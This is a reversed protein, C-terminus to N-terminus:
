AEAAEREAHWQSLPVRTWQEGVTEGEPIEAGWVVTLAGDDLSVGAHCIRLGAIFMTPMDALEIEPSKRLPKMEADAAKGIKTSVKPVLYDARQQRRWGAPVERDSRVVGRYDFANAWRGVWPEGGVTEAHKIVADTWEAVSAQSAEYAAVTAPDTTRYVAAPGIM